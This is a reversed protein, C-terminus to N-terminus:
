PTSRRGTAGRCGSASTARAAPGTRRRPWSGPWPCRGRGSSRGARASAGPCAPGRGTRRARPRRRRCGARRPPSGDLVVDAELARPEPDAGLAPLIEVQAPEPLDQQGDPMNMQTTIRTRPMQRRGARRADRAVHGVQEEVAGQGDRQEVGDPRTKPLFVLKATISKQRNQTTCRHTSSKRSSNVVMM